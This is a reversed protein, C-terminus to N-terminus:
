DPGGLANHGLMNRSVLLRGVRECFPESRSLELMEPLQDHAPLCVLGEKDTIQEKLVIGQGANLELRIM